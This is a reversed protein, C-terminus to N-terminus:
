ADDDSGFLEMNDGLKKMDSEIKLQKQCVEELKTDLLDELEKQNQRVCQGIDTGVSYYIRIDELDRIRSLIERIESTLIDM